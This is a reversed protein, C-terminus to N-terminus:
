KMLHKIGYILYNCYYNNKITEVYEKKLGFLEMWM